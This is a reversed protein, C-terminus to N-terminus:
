KRQIQQIALIQIPVEAAIGIRLEMGPSLAPSEYYVLAKRNDEPLVGIQSMITVGVVWAAKIESDCTVLLSVPSYIQNSVLATRGYPFDDPRLEISSWKIELPPPANNVVATGFNDGGIAIGQPANQVLPQKSEHPVQAVPTVVALLKRLDNLEYDITGTDMLSEKNEYNKLRQLVYDGRDKLKPRKKLEAAIERM